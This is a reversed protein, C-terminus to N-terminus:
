TRNFEKLTSLDQQLATFHEPTPEKAYRQYDGLVVEGQKQIGMRKIERVSSRILDMQNKMLANLHELEEPNKAIKSSNLANEFRLIQEQLHQHIVKDSQEPHIGGEGIKTM